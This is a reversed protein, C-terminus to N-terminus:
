QEKIVRYFCSKNSCVLTMNICTGATGCNKWSGNSLNAASQVQYTGSGGSWSLLSNTGQTSISAMITPTTVTFNVPSSNVAGSAGYYVRTLV